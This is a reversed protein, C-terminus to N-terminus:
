EGIGTVRVPYEVINVQKFTIVSRNTGTEPDYYRHNTYHSKIKTIRKISQVFVAPFGMELNSSSKLLIIIM